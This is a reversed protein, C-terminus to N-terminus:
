FLLSTKEASGPVLGAYNAAQVKRTTPDSAHCISSANKRERPIGQLQPRLGM